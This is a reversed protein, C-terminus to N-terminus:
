VCALDHSARDSIKLAERHEKPYMESEEAHGELGSTQKQVRPLFAEQELGKVGAKVSGDTRLQLAEPQSTM